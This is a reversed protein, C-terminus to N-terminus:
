WVVHNLLGSWYLPRLNDVVRTTDTAMCTSGRALRFIKNRKRNRASIDFVDVDANKRLNTTCMLHSAAVLAGVCGTNGRTRCSGHELAGVADDIEVFRDADATFSAHRRARIVGDEDIGFIVRSLFTVEARVPDIDPELWGADYDAGRM